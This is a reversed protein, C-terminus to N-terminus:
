LFSSWHGVWEWAGRVELFQCRQESFFSADASGAVRGAFFLNGSFESEALDAVLSEAEGDGLGSGGEVSAQQFARLRIPGRVLSSRIAARLLRVGSPLSPVEAV